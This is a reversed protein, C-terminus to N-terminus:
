LFLSCECRSVAIGNDFMEVEGTSLLQIMSRAREAEFAIILRTKIPRSLTTLKRIQELCISVKHHLTTAAAETCKLPKLKM